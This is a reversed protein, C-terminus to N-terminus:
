FIKERGPFFQFGVFIGQLNFNFRYDYNTNKTSNGSFDTTKNFHANFALIDFTIELAVRNTLFFNGGPKFSFGATKNRNMDPTADSGSKYHQTSLVIMGEGFVYLRPYLLNRYVRVFPSLSYQYNKFPQNNYSFGPSLGLVLNDKVFCGLYTNSNLSFTKQKDITGSLALNEGVLATGKKIQAHLDSCIIFFLVALLCLKSKM